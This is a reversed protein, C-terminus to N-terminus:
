RSRKKLDSVLADVSDFPGYVKGKAFDEEAEAIVKMLYKSPKLATSLNLEKDRVFQRLFANMVTGLPLGLESATNQAAIKLSKDTKINLITKM